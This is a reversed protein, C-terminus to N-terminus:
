DKTHSKSFIIMRRAHDEFTERARGIVEQSTRELKEGKEKSEESTKGTQNIVEGAGAWSTALAGNLRTVLDEDIIGKGQSTKLISQINRSLQKRQALIRQCIDGKDIAMGLLKGIVMILDMTEAHPWQKTRAAVGVVGQIRYTMLPVAILLRYGAKSFSSLGYKKDTSLDPVFIKDGLGAVQKALNQGLDMSGIERKMDETFGHCAVLQLERSESSLLQVWCCEINLIRLLMDLVMDVLQKPENSLSLVESVEAIIHLIDEKKMIALLLLCQRSEESIIVLELLIPFRNASSFLVFEYGRQKMM